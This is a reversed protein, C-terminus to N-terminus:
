EATARSRIGRSPHPQPPGSGVSQPRTQQRPQDEGPRSKEARNAVSKRSGARCADFPEIFKAVGEHELAEAVQEPDIGLARPWRTIAPMPSIGSSVAQPKGPQRYANITELPATNVTDPGILEEVYKIPSFTKDKTSTSAWLLRQTRAGAALAQWRPSAILEEYIEYAHAANAIAAQGRLAKAAIQGRRWSTWSRISTVTSEASSSAPSRPWAISPSRRPSASGPRRHLCQGRRSLARSFVVTDRQCQHWRRDGASPPLGPETGPIKIFANPRNLRGWLRRADEVSGETDFALHPSVELSIFGDQGQGTM